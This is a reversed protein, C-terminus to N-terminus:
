DLDAMRFRSSMMTTEASAWRRAVREPSASARWSRCRRLSFASRFKVPLRWRVIQVSGCRLRMRWRIRWNVSNLAMGTQNALVQLLHLDSKSYAAESQKPGLAMVGMLRNRGSLPLFLEAGLEDLTRRESQSAMLYWADPEERYFQAPSNTNTLNRITSSNTALTLTATGESSIGITRDLTFGAGGRLFIGIQNVHLTDAVCRSVTRLLPESETFRRVEDSLDKLVRESEYAERFFKKDLWSTSKKRFVLGIAAILLLFLVGEWIQDRSVQKQTLLPLLLRYSVVVVLVLQVGWLTVRALAYKTGQRVLISVDLARQALVVYALTFPALMFLVAGSYTVWMNNHASPSYGLDPLLVFAILLAGLGISTGALLVRLRRRADETSASQMKRSILILYLVVCMLDLANGIRDTWPVIRTLWSPNGALYFQGYVQRLDVSACLLAPGIVMWKLWPLGTDIRSREPFYIAFLLLALPGLIQLCYWYLGRFVLWGGSALGMGLGFVVEPFILLVLLLWANPEHAKTLVVWYGILM